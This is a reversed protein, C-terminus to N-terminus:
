FPYPSEGLEVSVWKLETFHEISYKGGSRGVGSLGRGGIPAMANSQFPHMGIHVSGARIRRAAEFARRVDRTMVAASLGYATDNALEIAHEFDDAVVVSMVPGFSEERWAATSRDPEWLITPAYVRGEYTGGAVLRAGAEVAAQVQEHVKRVAGDHILPGYAVGPERPDGVRLDQVRKTVAAEFASAIDRHVIVRSGSMCIQGGHVFAGVVAAHASDEIEVDELIVFPNKGGLELQVRKLRNGAAAGISRGVETSGTFAIGDVKPHQVLAAGCGPGTGTVVNFVGAPMGADHLIAALEVAVLPTEESPKAVVTNGGALPFAAMKVLLALPANFPSIVGVTGLPERFVMSLRESRDNPFTDGYLRRVEGAATRLLSAAYGVEFKAKAVTSGSEDVILESLRECARELREAGHLLIAEREAPATTTWVAQARVASVVAVDVDSADALACRGVVRRDFPALVDFSEGSRAARQSGDIFLGSEIM